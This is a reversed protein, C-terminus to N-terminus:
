LFASLDGIFRRYMAPRDVGWIAGEGSSARPPQFLSSPTLVIMSLDCRGPRDLLERGKEKLEKTDFSAGWASVATRVVAEAGATKSQKQLKKGSWGIRLM